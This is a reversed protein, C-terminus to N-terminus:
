AHVADHQLRGGLVARRDLRSLDRRGLLAAAVVRHDLVVHADLLVQILPQAGGREVRAEGDVRQEDGRQGAEALTVALVLGGCLWTLQPAAPGGCRRPPATVRGSREILDIPGQPESTWTACTRPTPRSSSAARRCM